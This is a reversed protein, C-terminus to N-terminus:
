VSPETLVEVLFCTTMPPVRPSFCSLFTKLCRALSLESLYPYFTIRLNKDESFDQTHSKTETHNYKIARTRIM